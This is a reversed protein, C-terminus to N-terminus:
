ALMPFGWYLTIWSPNTAIGDSGLILDVGYFEVDRSASVNMLLGPIYAGGHQPSGDIPFFGLRQDPVSPTILHINEEQDYGTHFATLEVFPGKERRYGVRLGEMASAANRDMADYGKVFYANMGTNKILCLPTYEPLKMNLYSESVGLYFNDQRPATEDKPYATEQAELMHPPLLMLILFSCILLKNM